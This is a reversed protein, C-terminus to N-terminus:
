IVLLSLSCSGKPTFNANVITGTSTAAKVVIFTNPNFVTEVASTLAATTFTGLDTTTADYTTANAEQFVTAFPVSFAQATVSGTTTANPTKFSCVTSTGQRFTQHDFVTQAIGATGSIQLPSILNGVAGFTPQVPNVAVHGNFATLFALLAVLATAISGLLAKSILTM